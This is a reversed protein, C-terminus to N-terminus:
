NPKPSAAPAVFPPGELETEIMFNVDDGVGMTTGPAPIGMNMGFDSRKLTGRASFGIRAHPDQLMGPYGGNYIVQMTVPRTVGRLTFDGVVDATSAGTPTVKTSRFSITQFKKFDFFQEGAMFDTLEKPPATLDLSTAEITANLVADAPKKPDIQLEGAIKGFRGTYVSFGMHNVRFTVSTHAKDIVYKGAPVGEISAAPAAPTPSAEPTAAIPSISATAPAAKESAPSCAALTAAAAIGLMLRM